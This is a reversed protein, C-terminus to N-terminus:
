YTSFILGNNKILNDINKILDKKETNYHRISSLCNEFNKWEIKSVESIQFKDLIDINKPMFALYYKHKYSKNNSAIFIEELPMMNEIQIFGNINYGTEEEFERIACDIDREQYNKRGKPFEWEAEEWNNESQNILDDLNCDEGNIQIGQKLTQFKRQSSSEERKYQLLQNGEGWMESWLEEFKVNKIKEKEKNSMSEFLSILHEKNHMVYKGRIFEIYAFTDKRRIMLYQLNGDLIRFAIIGYSTIPSRCQHFLHGIKGCNNCINQKNM